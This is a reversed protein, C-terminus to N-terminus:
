IFYAAQEPAANYPLVVVKAMRFVSGLNDQPIYGLFDVNPICTKVFEDLYNPFGPHNSGAVILKINADKENMEKFAKLLLPLGKHPGMHGFILIVNDPSNEKSHVDVSAGHPIYHVGTHRYRKKLFDGYSRVLVIVTQASLIIKTAILIGVRNILSPKVNFKELDAM